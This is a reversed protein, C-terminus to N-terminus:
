HLVPGSRTARALSRGLRNMPAEVLYHLLAALVLLAVLSVMLAAPGSVWGPGLKHFVVLLVPVHLLYIPYAWEGLVHAWRWRLVPWRLALVLLAALGLGSVFSPNLRLWSNWHVAGGVGALMVAVLVWAPVRRLVGEHRWVLVGMVFFVLHAPAANVIYAFRMFDNVPQVGARAIAPAFLADLWGAQAAAVWLSSVGLSVVGCALWYHPWRSRQAGWVLLPVLLYWCWEVTLTWSVTLVDHQQLAQPSFHTFAFFHILYTSWDAPWAWAAPPTMVAAVAIVAVWYAPYIRFARRVLYTPWPHVSASQVILYGSILFFLQVGLLGGVTSLWPVSWGTYTGLHNAVVASAALGRLPDLNNRYM